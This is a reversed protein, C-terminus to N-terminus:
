LDEEVTHFELGLEESIKNLASRDIFIAENDNSLPGFDDDYPLDTRYIEDIGEYRELADIGNYNVVSELSDLMADINFYSEVNTEDVECYSFYADYADGGSADIINNYEYDYMLDAIKNKADGKFDDFSLIQYEAAIQFIKPISTLEKEDEGREILKEKLSEIGPIYDDINLYNKPEDDASIHDAVLRGIIGEQIDYFMSNPDADVDDYAVDSIFDRISSESEKVYDKWNLEDEYETQTYKGFVAWFNDEIRKRFISEFIGMCDENTAITFYEMLDEISGNLEFDNKFIEYLQEKVTTAKQQIKGEAYNNLIKYERENNKIDPYNSLVDIAMKKYTDKQQERLVNAVEPPLVDNMDLENNHQDRFGAWHGTKKDCYQYLKFTKKDLVIKLPYGSGMYKYWQNNNGPWATCWVCLTETGEGDRFAISSEVTWPIIVLYNKDNYLEKAGLTLSKKVVQIVRNSEKKANENKLCDEYYIRLEKMCVSSDTSVSMLNNFFTTLHNYVAADFINKAWDIYTNFTRKLNDMVTDISIKTTNDLSNAIEKAFEKASNQCVQALWRTAIGCKNTSEDADPDVKIIKNMIDDPIKPFQQKMGSITSENLIRRDNEILNLFENYLSM